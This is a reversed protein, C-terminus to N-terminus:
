NPQENAGWGHLCLLVTGDSDLIQGLYYDHAPLIAPKGFLAQYWKLSASVNGAGM